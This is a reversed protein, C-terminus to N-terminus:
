FDSLELSDEKWIECSKPMKENSDDGLDFQNGKIENKPTYLFTKKAKCYFLNVKREWESGNYYEGTIITEQKELHHCNFCPRQNKPNNFCITEHYEMQSKNLGHKKCHECYYVEKTKVKM